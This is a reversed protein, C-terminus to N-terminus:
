KLKLYRRKYYGWFYSILFAKAKKKYTLKMNFAINLFKKRIFNKYELLKEEMQTDINSIIMKDIFTIYGEFYYSEAYVRLLKSKKYRNMIRDHADIYDLNKNTFTKKTISGSRNIYHYLPQRKYVDLHTYSVSGM